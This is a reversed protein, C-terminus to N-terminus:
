TKGIITCWCPVRCIDLMMEQLFLLTITFFTTIAFTNTPPPVCLSMHSDCLFSIKIKIKKWNSSEYSSVEAAGSAASRGAATRCATFATLEQLLWCHASRVNMLRMRNVRRWFCSCTWKFVSKDGEHMFNRWPYALHVHQTLSWYNFCLGKGATVLSRGWM